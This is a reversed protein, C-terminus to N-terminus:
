LNWKREGDWKREISNKVIKKKKEGMELGRFEEKETSFSFFFINM